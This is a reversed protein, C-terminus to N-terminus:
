CEVPCVVVCDTYKCDFCPECVVHTMSSDRREVTRRVCVLGFCCRSLLASSPWRGGTRPMITLTVTPTLGAINTAKKDAAPLHILWFVGLGVSGWRGRFRTVALHGGAPRRM